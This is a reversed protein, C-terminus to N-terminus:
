YEVCAGYAGTGGQRARSPTLRDCIGGVGDRFIRLDASRLTADALDGANCSNVRPRTATFEQRAALREWHELAPARVRRCMAARQNVHNSTATFVGHADRIRPRSENLELEQLKM